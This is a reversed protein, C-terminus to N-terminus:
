FRRELNVRGQLLSIALSCLQWEAALGIVAAVMPPRGPLASHSGSIVQKGGMGFRADLRVLLCERSILGTRDNRADVAKRSGMIPLFEVLATQAINNIGCLNRTSNRCLPGRDGGVLESSSRLRVFPSYPRMAM